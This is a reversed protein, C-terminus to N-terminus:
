LAGGLPVGHCAWTPLPLHRHGKDRAGLRESCGCGDKDHGLRASSAGAWDGTKSQHAWGYETWTAAHEVGYGKNGRLDIESKGRKWAASKSNNLRRGTRTAVADGYEIERRGEEGPLGVADSWARSSLFCTLSAMEDGLHSYRRLRTPSRWATM